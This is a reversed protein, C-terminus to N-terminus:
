HGRRERERRAAMSRLVAYVIAVLIVNAFTNLPARWERGGPELLTTLMPVFTRLTVYMAFGLLVAPIWPGDQERAAASSYYYKTYYAFLVVAAFFAAISTMADLAM